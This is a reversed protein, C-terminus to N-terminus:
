DEIYALSRRWPRPIFMPVRQQYDRYRTGFRARLDREEWRGGLVIWASWLLGFLLRDATPDPHAWIMILSLTYLPHRVWRYPGCVVFASAGDAAAGDRLPRLGLLDFDRLALAGWVMGLAAGVFVAHIALRWTGTASLSPEAVPQWLGVVALLVLGSAITYVAGDYAEPLWRRLARRTRQRVMGSHQAFFLGSLLADWALAQHPSLGLDLPVPPGRWLFGGFALLGVGGLVFAVAAILARM